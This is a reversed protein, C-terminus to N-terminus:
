PSIGSDSREGIIKIKFLVKNFIPCNRNKCKCTAPMMSKLLICFYHQKILMYDLNICKLTYNCLAFVTYNFYCPISCLFCTFIVIVIIIIM